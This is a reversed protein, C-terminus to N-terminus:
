PAAKREASRRRPSSSGSRQAASTSEYAPLMALYKLELLRWARAPIRRPSLTGMWMDLTCESSIWEQVVPAGEPAAIEVWFKPIASMMASRWQERVTNPSGRGYTSSNNSLVYVRRGARVAHSMLFQLVLDDAQCLAHDTVNARLKSSCLRRPRRGDVFPPPTELDVVRPECLYITLLRLMQLPDDPTPAAAVDSWRRRLTEPLCRFPRRPSQRVGKAVLVFLKTPWAHRTVFPSRVLHSALAYEDFRRSWAPPPPPAGGRSQPVGGGNAEDRLKFRLSEGDVFVVSEYGELLRPVGRTLECGAATAM